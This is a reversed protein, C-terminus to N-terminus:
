NGSPFEKHHWVDMPIRGQQGPKPGSDQKVFCPVGVAKCQEVLSRIWACDCPRAGPGSEGGCIVWAPKGYKEWLPLANISGLLPEASWFDVKCSTAKLHPHREDAAAQNEISTGLWVNEPLYEDSEGSDTGDSRLPLMRLVNEPRKTLLLWDLNPTAEILRFLRTRVDDMRLPRVSNGFHWNGGDTFLQAGSSDVMPGIWDEFVDALSACFVRPREPKPLIRGRIREALWVHATSVFTKDWKLPLKWQAESAVVRTGKPGWVGLTKPNRNSLTEAYCSACGASVKTCGRWPNWTHTTWEIKSNEAM